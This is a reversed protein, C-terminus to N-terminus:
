WSLHKEEKLPEIMNPVRVWRSHPHKGELSFILMNFMDMTKCTSTGAHLCPHAHIARTGRESLGAAWHILRGTVM